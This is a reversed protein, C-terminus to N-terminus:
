VDSSFFRPQSTLPNTEEAGETHRMSQRYSPPPTLRIRENEAVGISPMYQPPPTESADNEAPFEPQAQQLPETQSNNDTRTPRVEIEAIRTNRYSRERRIRKSRRHYLYAIMASCIFIMLSVTSFIM